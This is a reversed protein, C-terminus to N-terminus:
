KRDNKRTSNQKSLNINSLDLGGGEDNNLIRQTITVNRRKPEGPTIVLTKGGSSSLRRRIKNRKKQQDYGNMMLQDLKNGFQNKM